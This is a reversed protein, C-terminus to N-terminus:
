SIKEKLQIIKEVLEKPLVKSKVMFEDAKLERAKEETDKDGLNTFVLVATKQFKSDSKIRKLLDFGKEREPAEQGPEKEGSPLRLDLVIVDPAPEEELFKLASLYDECTETEFRYKLNHDSIKIAYNFLSRLLAEDEIFLVKIENM